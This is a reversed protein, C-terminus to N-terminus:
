TGYHPTDLFLDAVALARLYDRHPMRRLFVLRAGRVGLAEANRQVCM